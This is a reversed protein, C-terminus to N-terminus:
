VAGIDHSKQTEPLRGFATFAQQHTGRMKVIGHLNLPRIREWYQQAVEPMVPPPLVVRPFRRHRWFVNGDETKVIAEQM